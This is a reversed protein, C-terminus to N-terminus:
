PMLLDMVPTALGSGRLKDICMIVERKTGSLVLQTAGNVQAEGAWRWRELDVDDSDGGAPGQGQPAPWESGSRLYALNENWGQHLQLDRVLRLARRIPEEAGSGRSRSEALTKEYELFDLDTLSHRRHRLAPDAAVAMLTTMHEVKRERTAVPLPRLSAWTVALRVADGLAIRQAVVLCSLAGIFGHGLLHTTGRPLWCGNNSERLEAHSALLAVNSALIFAATLDPSAMLEDIARGRVWSRLWGRGEEASAAVPSSRHMIDHAKALLAPPPTYGRDPQPTLLAESAESWIRLSSPTPNSPLHPYSGQPALSSPALAPTLPLSWPALPGVIVDNDDSGSEELSDGQTSGRELAVRSACSGGAQHM